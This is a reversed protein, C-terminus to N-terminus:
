KHLGYHKINKVKMITPLYKDLKDGKNTQVAMNIIVNMPITFPKGNRVGVLKNDVYIKIDENPYWDVRYKHWSDELSKDVIAEGGKNLRHAYDTGYHTKYSFRHRDGFYEFIDIERIGVESQGFLWFASWFGYGKPIYIDAEFTGYLYKDKSYLMGSTYHYEKKEESNWFPKISVTEKKIIFDYSNGDQIVNDSLYVQQEKEDKLKKGWPYDYRFDEIYRYSRYIPKTKLLGLKYLILRIKNM